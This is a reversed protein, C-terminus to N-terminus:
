LNAHVHAEGREVRRRLAWRTLGLRQAKSELSGSQAYYVILAIRFQPEATCVCHDVQAVDTPMADSPVGGRGTRAQEISSM